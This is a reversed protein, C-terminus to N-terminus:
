TRGDSTLPGASTFTVASPGILGVQGARAPLASLFDTLPGDLSLRHSFYLTTRRLSLAASHRIPDAKVEPPFGPWAYVRAGIARLENLYRAASQEDPCRMVTALPVMDGSEKVARMGGYLALRSSLLRHLSLRARAISEIAGSAIVRAVRRRSFGTMWVEELSDNIEPDISHVTPSLRRPARPRGLIRRKIARRFDKAVWRAIPPPQAPLGRAVQALQTCLEAGRVALFGGDPISFFKRPSYCVLDGHLGIKGDPRMVQTADEILLAGTEHCFGRAAAADAIIGLHHVLVFLDPRQRAALERCVTWDPQFTETIPYFALTAGTRRVVSLTEEGFYDPFWVVPAARRQAALGDIVLRFAHRAQSLCYFDDAGGLWVSRM